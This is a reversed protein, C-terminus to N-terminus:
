AASMRPTSFLKRQPGVLLVAVRKVGGVFDFAEKELARVGFLAVVFGVLEIVHVGAAVIMGQGTVRQATEDVGGGFHLAGHSELVFLVMGFDRRRLELDVVTVAFDHGGGILDLEVFQDAALDRRAHSHGGREQRFGHDAHVAVAHM